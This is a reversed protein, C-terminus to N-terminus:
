PLDRVVAVQSSQQLLNQNFELRFVGAELGGQEEPETVKQLEVPLHEQDFSVFGIELRKL